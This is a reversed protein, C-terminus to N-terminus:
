GLPFIVAVATLLVAAVVGLGIIAWGVIIFVLGSQAPGDLRFRSYDSPDYAVTVQKGPFLPMSRVMTHGRRFVGDPSRWEYQPFNFGSPVVIGQALPWSSSGRKHIVSGITWFIAGLLLPIASLFPIWAPM